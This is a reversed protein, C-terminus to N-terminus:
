SSTWDAYEFSGAGLVGYAITGNITILAILPLKLKFCRQLREQSWIDKFGSITWTSLGMYCFRVVLSLRTLYPSLIGMFKHLCRVERFTSM